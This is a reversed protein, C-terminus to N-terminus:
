PISVSLVEKPGLPEHNNSALMVVIKHAGSSLGHFSLKSAPTAIIYGEDIQYHLHGEKKGAKGRVLSSPDILKVGTVTV